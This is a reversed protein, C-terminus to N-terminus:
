ATTMENRDSKPSSSSKTPTQWPTIALIAGSACTISTV